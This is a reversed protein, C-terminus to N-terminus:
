LGALDFTKDRRHFGFAAVDAAFTFVITKFFNNVEVKAINISFVMKAVRM